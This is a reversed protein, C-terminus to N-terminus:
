GRNKDGLRDKLLDALLKRGIPILCLGVATCLMADAINFAPWHWRGYYVDIFDRVMGNCFLRDWLNGLAGAAFLALAVITLKKRPRDFVFVGIIITVAVASVLILLLRQGAAIGFAAGPNQRMVFRLGLRSWEIVSVAFGQKTSLWDFVARKSVLDALLGAAVLPWFILHPKVRHEISSARHEISV